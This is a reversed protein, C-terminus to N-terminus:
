KIRNVWFLATAVQMCHTTLIHGSSGYGVILVSIYIFSTTSTAGNGGSQDEDEVLPAVVAARAFSVEVSFTSDVVVGNNGSSTAKNITEAFALSSNHCFDADDRKDKAIM